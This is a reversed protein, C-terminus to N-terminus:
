SHCPFSMLWPALADHVSVDNQFDLTPLRQLEVGMEGPEEEEAQVPGYRNRMSRIKGCLMGVLRSVAVVVQGPEEGAVQEPRDWMRGIKYLTNLLGSVAVVLPILQGTSRVTGVGEIHNWRIQLEPGVILAPLLFMFCIAFFPRVERELWSGQPEDGYSFLSSNAASWLTGLHIRRLVFVVLLVLFMMGTFICFLTSEFKLYTKYWHYIDVKDYFFVFRSCPPHAMKDIGIFTLWITYFNVAGLLAVRILNGIVSGSISLSSWIGGACLSHVTFVEAVYVESLPNSTTVYLLAIFISLTFGAYRLCM